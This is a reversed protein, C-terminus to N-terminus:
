VGFGEGGGEVLLIRCPQWGVTGLFGVAAEEESQRRARVDGGAAQENRDCIWAPRCIADGCGIMRRMPLRPVPVCPCREWDRGAQKAEAAEWSWREHRLQHLRLLSSETGM